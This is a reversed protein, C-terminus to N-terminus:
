FYKLKLLLTGKLNVFCHISDSVKQCRYCIKNTNRYYILDKVQLVAYVVDYARSLSSNQKQATRPLYSKEGLHSGNFNNM